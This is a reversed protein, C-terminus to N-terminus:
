ATHERYAECGPCLKSPPDAYFEGCDECLPPLLTPNGHQHCSTNVAVVKGDKRACKCVKKAEEELAYALRVMASEKKKPKGRRMFGRRM